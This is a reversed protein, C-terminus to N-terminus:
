NVKMAAFLLILIIYFLVIGLLGYKVVKWITKSRKNKISLQENIRALQINISEDEKIERSIVNKGLLTSVEVEFIDSLKELLEADPVSLNKEWKSITQRVVNLKIALDEQTLGKQKRIEKINDGLM